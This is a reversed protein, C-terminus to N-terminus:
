KGKSTPPGNEMSCVKTSKQKMLVPTINELQKPCSKSPLTNYDTIQYGETEDVDFYGV